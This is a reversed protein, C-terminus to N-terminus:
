VFNLNKKNTIVKNIFYYHFRVYLTLKYLYYIRKKIKCLLNWRFTQMLLIKEEDNDAQIDGSEFWLNLTGM